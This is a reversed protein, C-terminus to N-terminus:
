DNYAFRRTIKYLIRGSYPMYFQATPGILLACAITGLGITGGLLYGIVVMTADVVIRVWRFQFRMKDSIIVSILDNAGMGVSANIVCALGFGIVLCSLLTIGLRVYYPLSDNIFIRLLSSAFDIMPGTVFLAIFTGIRIYKRDVLLIILIYAANISIHAMGNSIGFTKAVGQMLMGFPDTGTGTLVFVAAGVATICIGIIFYLQRLLLEPKTCTTTM